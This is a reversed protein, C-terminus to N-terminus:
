LAESELSSDSQAARLTELEWISDSQAARLTELEWIRLNELPFSLFLNM